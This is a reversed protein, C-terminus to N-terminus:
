RNENTDIEPEMFDLLGSLANNEQLQFLPSAKRREYFEEAESANMGIEALARAASSRVSGDPDSTATSILEPVALRAAEKSLTALSQTAVRRVVPSPDNQMAEIIIQINQDGLVALAILANSRPEVFRNTRVCDRLASQASPAMGIKALHRFMGSAATQWQNTSIPSPLFRQSPLWKGLAPKKLRIWYANSYWFTSRYGASGGLAATLFEIGDQGLHEFAEESKDRNRVWHSEALWNHASVGEYRPADERNTLLAFMIVLGLLGIGILIKRRSNSSRKIEKQM